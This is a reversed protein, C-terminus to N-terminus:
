QSLRSRKRDPSHSFTRRPRLRTNGVPTGDIRPTSVREISQSVITNLVPAAPSLTKFLASDEPSVIM